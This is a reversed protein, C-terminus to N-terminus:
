GLRVLNTYDEFNGTRRGRDADSSNPASAVTGFNIRNGGMILNHDANRAHLTFSSPASSVKEMVWEPDFRVRRTGSEVQAGGTALISLAETHFFDMGIEALIRLSAIHIADIQDDSLVELPRFPNTVVRWPLQHVGAGGRSSRREARTSGEGRAARRGSEVPPGTVM